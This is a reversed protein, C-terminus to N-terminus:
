GYLGEPLAGHRRGRPLRKDGLQKRARGGRGCERGGGGDRGRSSSSSALHKPLSRGHMAAIGTSAPPRSGPAEEEEQEESVDGNLSLHSHRRLPPHLRASAAGMGACIDNMDDPRANNRGSTTHARSRATRAGAEASSRQIYTALRDLGQMPEAPPCAHIFTALSDLCHIPVAPTCMFALAM